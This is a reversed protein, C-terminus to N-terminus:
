NLRTDSGAVGASRVQMSTTKSPRLAAWVTRETRVTLDDRRLISHPSGPDLLRDLATLDEASLRDAIVSRIRQLIRLAYLGIAETRSGEINVAITREGEITFGAATLMPGWDAGRHPMHEAQLRDAAAHVREELGPRDKPANEPLFRPHGALEVVAFLGGPALADHVTRLAHDPHAMHHMSASAWVLDPSGLDPWADEDLDAQVTRVRHQVGRACAKTRLRQLHEASADVATVHADPFRDLLAFTGAGTGCGLDVIHHPATHLPLWATISATHEALIEADLDLIEAQSDSGNDHHHGHSADHHTTHTHPQNM